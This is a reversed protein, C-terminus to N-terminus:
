GALVAAEADAKEAIGHAVEAGAEDFICWMRKGRWVAKLKRRQASALPPSPPPAPTPASLPPPTPPTSPSHTSSFTPTPAPSSPTFGDQPRTPTDKAIDRKGFLGQATSLKVSNIAFPEGPVTMRGNCLFARRVVYSAKPDFTDAWRSLRPSRDPQM